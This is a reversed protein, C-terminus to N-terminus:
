IMIVLSLCMKILWFLFWSLWCMKALLFYTPKNRYLLFGRKPIWHVRPFCKRGGAPQPLTKGAFLQQFAQLHTLWNALPQHIHCILCFRMARDTWSRFCKNHSMCDLMAMPFFQARETSWHQNCTHCSKTCTMLKRFMSRLHLPKAVIWFAITSWIPLLGGFLSWSGKKPALRAKPLAKSSRRPGVVSSIIAPQWICDMKWQVDCDSLSITWQQISYSFVVSWNKKIEPWSMLCGSLSSKWRELKSWISFSWLIISMSNKLLKECLQLLILKSSPKWNTMTLNWHSAEKSRMKLARTEKAFSRLGSSCQVTMLLKQAMNSTNSTTETAKCGNQTQVKFIAQIQKKDLIM